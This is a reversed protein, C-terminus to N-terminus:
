CDFNDRVVIQYRSTAFQFGNILWSVDLPQVLMTTESAVDVPNISLTGRLTDGETYSFPLDFPVDFPSVTNPQGVTAEFQFTVAAAQARSHGIFAVFVYISLLQRSFISNVLGAEKFGGVGAAPAWDHRGLRAAPESVRFWEGFARDSEHAEVADRGTLGFRGLSTM